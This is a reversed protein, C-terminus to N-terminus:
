ERDGEIFAEWKSFLRNVNKMEKGGTPSQQKEGTAESTGGPIPLMSIMRGAPLDWGIGTMANTWHMMEKIASSVDSADDDLIFAELSVEFKCLVLPGSTVEFGTDAIKIRCRPVATQGAVKGLYVSALPILSHISFLSWRTAIGASVDTASPTAM